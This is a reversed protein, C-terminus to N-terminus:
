CNTGYISFYSGMWYYCPSSSLGVNGPTALLIAGEDKNGGM